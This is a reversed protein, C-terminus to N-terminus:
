SCAELDETEVCPGYRSYFPGLLCLRCSTLFYCSLSSFRHRGTPDMRVPSFPPLKGPSLEFCNLIPYREEKDLTTRREGGISCVMVGGLPRTRMLQTSSQCNRSRKRTRAQRSM